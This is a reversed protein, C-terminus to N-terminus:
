RRDGNQDVADRKLLDAAGQLLGSMSELLAGAARPAAKVGSSAAEQAFRVPHHAAATLAAQAQGRIRGAAARRAHDVIDKLGAGAEKGADRIRQSVVDMFMRELTRLDDVTQAVDSRAFTEARGRAEEFALRTATATAEFGDALGDITERLVSDRRDPAASQVGRIAADLMRGALDQVRHIPIRRERVTRVVARRVRERVGDGERAIRETEEAASEFENSEPTDMM